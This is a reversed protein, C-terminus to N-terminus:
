RWHGRWGGWGGRYGHWGGHAWVWPRGGWYRYYHPGYYWRGGVWVPGGYSPYSCGPAYYNYGWCPYPNVPAVYPGPVGIGIGVSVGANAPTAVTTDLAAGAMMAAGLALKAFRNM